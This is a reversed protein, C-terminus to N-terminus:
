QKEFCGLDPLGVARPNGDLDTILSTNVGKNLAPSSSKLRFDFYRKSIDISDFQPNQNNIIQNSIINAPTNQVKWLNYDFNVNFTTNGNKAVVM